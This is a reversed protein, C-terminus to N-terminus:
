RRTSAALDAKRAAFTAFAFALDVGGFVFNFFPISGTLALALVFLGGVARVGISAFVCSMANPLAFATAGYFAGLSTILMGCLHVYGPGHLGDPYPIPLLESLPRLAFVIALGVAVDYAAGVLLATRTRIMQMTRPAHNGGPPRREVSRRPGANNRAPDARAVM